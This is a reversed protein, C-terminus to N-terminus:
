AVSSKEQKELWKKLGEVPVRLMERGEGLDIVPLGKFKILHYIKDKGVGLAHGAEEVSLALPQIPRKDAPVATRKRM